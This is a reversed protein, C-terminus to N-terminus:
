GRWGLGGKGNGILGEITRKKLFGEVVTAEEDTASLFVVPRGRFQTVLRNLHPIAEVCPGCWTAWIELIVAKGELAQQSVNAVPQEPILKDLRIEPARDGVKVTGFAQGAAVQPAPAARLSTFGALGLALLFVGFRLVQRKFTGNM